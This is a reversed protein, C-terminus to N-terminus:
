KKFSEFLKALQEVGDLTSPIQKTDPIVNSFMLSEFKSLSQHDKNREAFETYGQIFMCLNRRLNIQTLENKICQYNQLTIKFFYLFILTATATMMYGFINSEIGSLWFVLNTLVPAFIMPTSIKLMNRANRKEIRKQDRFKKYANELGIFTLDDNIENVKDDLSEVVKIKGLIGFELSDIIQVLRDTFGKEIEKGRFGYDTLIKEIRKNESSIGILNEKEQNLYDVESRLELYDSRIIINLLDNKVYLYYKYHSYGHSTDIGSYIDNYLKFREIPFILEDILGDGNDKYNFEIIFRMIYIYMYALYSSNLSKDIIPFRRARVCTKIFADELKKIYIFTGKIDRYLSRIDNTYKKDDINNKFIIDKISHIFKEESIDNLCEGINKFNYRFNVEVSEDNM